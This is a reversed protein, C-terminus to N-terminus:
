DSQKATASIIVGTANSANKQKLQKEYGGICSACCSAGNSAKRVKCSCNLKTKCNGCKAM